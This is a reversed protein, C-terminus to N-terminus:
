CRSPAVPERSCTYAEGNDNNRGVAPRPWAAAAAGVGALFGAVAHGGRPELSPMTGALVLSRSPAWVPKAAAVRSASRHRPPAYRSHESRGCHTRPEGSEHAPQTSKLMLVKVHPSM